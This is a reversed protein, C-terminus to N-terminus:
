KVSVAWVIKFNIWCWYLLWSFDSYIFGTSIDAVSIDTIFLVIGHWYKSTHVSCCVGIHNSSYTSLWDCFLIGWSTFCLTEVSAHKQTYQINVLRQRENKLIQKMIVRAVVKCQLLYHGLYQTGPPREWTRPIPWPCDSHGRPPWWVNLSTIRYALARM